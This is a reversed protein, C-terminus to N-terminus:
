AADWASPRIELYCMDVRLMDMAREFLARGPGYQAALAHEALPELEAALV